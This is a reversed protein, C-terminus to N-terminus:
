RRRGAHAPTVILLIVTVLIGRLAIMAARPLVKVPVARKQLAPPRHIIVTAGPEEAKECAYHHATDDSREQVLKSSSLTHHNALVARRTSLQTALPSTARRRIPVDASYEPPCPPLWVWPSGLSAETAWEAVMSSQQGNTAFTDWTAEVHMHIMTRHSVGATM